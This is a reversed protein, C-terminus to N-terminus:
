LMNLLEGVPKHTNGPVEPELVPPRIADGVAGNLPGNGGLKKGSEGMGVGHEHPANQHHANPTEIDKLM